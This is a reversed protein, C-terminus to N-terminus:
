KGGGSATLNAALGAPGYESFLWSEIWRDLTEEDPKVAEISFALVAGGRLVKVIVREGFRVAEFRRMLATLDSLGLDLGGLELLQDGARLGAKEAPGGLAVGCIEFHLFVTGAVEVRRRSYSLGLTGRSSWEARKSQIRLSIDSPPEPQTAMSTSAVFLLASVLVWRAFRSLDETKM